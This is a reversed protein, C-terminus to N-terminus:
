PLRKPRRKLGEKWSCAKPPGQKKQEGKDFKVMASRKPVKSPIPLVTSADSSTAYWVCGRCQVGRADDSLLTDNYHRILELDEADVTSNYLEKHHHQFAATPHWDLPVEGDPLDSTDDKGYHNQYYSSEEWPWVTWGRAMLALPMVKDSAWFRRGPWETKSLGEWDIRDIHQPAFADLLATTRFYASGALGWRDWTAKYCPSRARGLRTLYSMAETSLKPHYLDSHGGADYPPDLAHRRKVVVDPELLIIFTTNLM